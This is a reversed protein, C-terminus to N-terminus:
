QGRKCSKNEYLKVVSYGTRLLHYYQKSTREWTAIGRYDKLINGKQSSGLGKQGSLYEVDATEVNTQTNTSQAEWLSNWYSGIEEGVWSHKRWIADNGALEIYREYTQKITLM